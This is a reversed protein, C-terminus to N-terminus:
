WIFYWGFYRAVIDFEVFASESIIGIFVIPNKELYFEVLGEFGCEVIAKEIRQKLEKSM